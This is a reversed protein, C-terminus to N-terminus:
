KKPERELHKLIRTAKSTTEFQQFVCVYEYSIHYTIITRKEARNSPLVALYVLFGM